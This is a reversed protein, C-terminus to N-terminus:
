KKVIVLSLILWLKSIQDPLNVQFETSKPNSNFQTSSFILFFFDPSVRRGPWFGPQLGDSKTSPTFSQSLTTISQSQIRWHQAMTTTPFLEYLILSPYFEQSWPIDNTKWQKQRHLGHMRNCEKYSFSFEVIGCRCAHPTNMISAGYCVLYFPANLSSHLVTRKLFNLLVTRLPFYNIQIWIM